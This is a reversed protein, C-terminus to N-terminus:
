FQLVEPYCNLIQCSFCVYTCQCTNWNKWFMNEGFTV